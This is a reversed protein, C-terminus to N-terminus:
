EVVITGCPFSASIRKDGRKFADCTSGLLEIHDNTGPKLRWDTGCDLPAGDMRVDGEECVRNADSVRGNLNIDCNLQLDVVAKFEKALDDADTGVWYEAGNTGIGANALDQLHRPSVSTGVSLVYTEYGKSRARKVADVALQQSVGSSHDDPDECRDPEGDTALVFVTPHEPPPPNNDLMRVVKDIADGTPTDGMELGRPDRPFNRHNDSISTLDFSMNVSSMHPCTNSEGDYTYTVLGLNASASTQDVVQSIADHAAEWRTVPGFNQSRMSGSQDVIFLVNPTASTPKIEARACTDGDREPGGDALMAECRGRETCMQDRACGETPTCAATCVGDLCFTGMDCDADRGCQAEGCRPPPTRLTECLEDPNLDNKNIKNGGLDNACGLLGAVVLAGSAFIISSKM